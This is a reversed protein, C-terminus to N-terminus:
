HKITYKLLVFNDDNFSEVRSLQASDKLLLSPNDILTAKDLIAYATDGEVQEIMPFTRKVGDFFRISRMAGNKRNILTSSMTRLNNGEKFNLMIWDQTPMVNIPIKRTTNMWYKALETDSGSHAEIDKRTIGSSSQKLEIIPKLKEEKNLGVEYIYPLQGTPRCLIKGDPLLFFNTNQMSAGGIMDDSYSFDYKVENADSDFVIYRYPEPSNGTPSLIHESESIDQIECFYLGKPQTKQDYPKIPLLIEKIYNFATDYFMIKKDTMIQILKSFPNWSYGQIGNYEAPGEGLKNNSSAIMRGNNDFLYLLDRDGRVVIINSDTSFKQVYKPYVGKGDYKLETTEVSKFLDTISVYTANDTDYTEEACQKSEHSCSTSMATVIIM